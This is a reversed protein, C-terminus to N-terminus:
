RNRAFLQQLYALSHEHSKQHGSIATTEEFIAVAKEAYSQWSPDGQKELCYALAYYTFPFEPFQKIANRDKELAVAECVPRFRNDDVERWTGEVTQSIETPMTVDGKTYVMGNFTLGAVYSYKRLTTIQNKTSQLKGQTTLLTYRLERITGRNTFANVLFIAVGLIVLSMRVHEIQENKIEPFFHRLFTQVKNLPLFGSSLTILAAGVNVIWFMM